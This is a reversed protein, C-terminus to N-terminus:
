HHQRRSVGDTIQYTGGEKWVVMMERRQIGLSDTRGNGEEGKPTTKDQGGGGRPKKPRGEEGERM